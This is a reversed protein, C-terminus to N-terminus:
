LVVERYFNMIIQGYLAMLFIGLLLYPGFAIEEEAAANGRKIRILEIISGSVTAIIIAFLLEFGGLLFGGIGVLWVDGSGMAERKLIWRAILRVSGFFGFGIASGALHTWIEGGRLFVRCLVLGISLLAFLILTIDYIDHNEYDIAAMVLFLFALALMLMMEPLMQLTGFQLFTLLFFLGGFLELLFSFFGIPANCSRCKGRQLLYAVVPLNEYWALEKKCAPCYSGPKVISQKKPLRYAVVGAFSAFATGFLFSFIALIWKITEM